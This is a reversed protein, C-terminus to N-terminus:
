TIPFNVADADASNMADYILRQVILSEEEMNVDSTLKNVKFGRETFSDM